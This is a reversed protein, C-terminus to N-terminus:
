NPIVKEFGAKNSQLIKIQEQIVIGENKSDEEISQALSENPQCKRKTLDGHLEQVTDKLHMLRTHIARIKETYTILEQRPVIDPLTAANSSGSANVTSYTVRSDSTGLNTAYAYVGSTPSTAHPFLSTNILTHNSHTPWNPQLPTIELCINKIESQTEADCTNYECGYERLVSNVCEKFEKTLDRTAQPQQPQQFPFPSELLQLLQSTVHHGLNLLDFVSAEKAFASSALLRAELIPLSSQLSLLQTALIQEKEQRQEKIQNIILNKRAELSSKLKEYMDLVVSEEIDAKNVTEQRIASISVISENTRQQLSELSEMAESLNTSNQTYATKLDTCEIRKENDLDRFCNICLLSKLTSSYMIYEEGHKDCTKKQKQTRKEVPVVDHKAFMKASHILRRCENCLAQDCTNCFVMANMEECNACEM